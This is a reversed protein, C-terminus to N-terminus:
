LAPLKDEYAAFGASQIRVIFQENWPTVFHFEGRDNTVQSQAASAGVLEVQAGAIRAGHEDSVIGSIDAAAIVCNLVVFGFVAPRRASMNIISFRTTKPETQSSGRAPLGAM